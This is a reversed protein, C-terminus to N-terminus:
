AMKIYPTKGVKILKIHSGLLAKNVV